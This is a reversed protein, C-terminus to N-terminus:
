AKQHTSEKTQAATPQEDDVAPVIDIAQLGKRCATRRYNVRTGELHKTFKGQLAGRLELAHFWLDKEGAQDQKIWGFGRQVNLHTLTGYLM